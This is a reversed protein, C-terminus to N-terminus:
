RWINGVVFASGDWPHIQGHRQVGVVALRPVPRLQVLPVLQVQAVHVAPLRLCVDDAVRRGRIWLRDIAGDIGEAGPRLLVADLM